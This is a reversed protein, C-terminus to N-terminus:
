NADEYAAVVEAPVRGRDSLDPWGNQRAWERIVAPATKGSNNSRQRPGKGRHPRAAEIFPALAERLKDANEPTLDIEYAKNYLSFEVTNLQGEPIEEGTLDDLYTKITIEKLAM